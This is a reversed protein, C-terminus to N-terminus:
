YNLKSLLTLLMNTTKLKNLQPCRQGISTTEQRVKLHSTQIITLFMTTRTILLLQEERILTSQPLAEEM